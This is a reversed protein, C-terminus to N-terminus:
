FVGQERDLSELVRRQGNGLRVIERCWYSCIGTGSYDQRSRENERVVTDCRSGVGGMGGEEGPVLDWGMKVLRLSFATGEM